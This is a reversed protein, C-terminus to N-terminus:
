GRIARLALASLTTRSSPCAATLWRGKWACGALRALGEVEDSDKALPVRIDVQAAM